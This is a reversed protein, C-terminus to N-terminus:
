EGVPGPPGGPFFSRPLAWATPKGGQFFVDAGILSRYAGQDTASGGWVTGLLPLGGGDRKLPCEDWRSCSPTWRMPDTCVCESM